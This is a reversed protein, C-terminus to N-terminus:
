ARARCTCPMHVAHARCTCTCTCTCACTCTCWLTCWVTGYLLVACLLTSSPGGMLPLGKRTCCLGDVLQMGAGQLMREGATLADAATPPPLPPPLSPPPPSLPQSTPPSTPPSPPPSPPPPLPSSLSPPPPSPPPSLPPSPPPNPPPPPAVAPVVAPRRAPRCRSTLGGGGGFRDPPASLDAHAGPAVRGLRDQKTLRKAPGAASASTHEEQGNQEALCAVRGTRDSAGSVPAKFAPATSFARMASAGIGLVLLPM